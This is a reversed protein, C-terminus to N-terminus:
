QDTVLHAKNWVSVGSRKGGRSFPPHHVDQQSTRRSEEIDPRDLLGYGDGVIVMSVSVLVLLTVVDGLLSM